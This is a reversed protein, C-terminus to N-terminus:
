SRRLWGRRNRYLPRNPTTLDFEWSRRDTPGDPPESHIKHEADIKEGRNSTVTLLRAAVATNPTKKGARCFEIVVRDENCAVVDGAGLDDHLVRDGVKFTRM